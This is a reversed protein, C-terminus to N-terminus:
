NKRQDFQDFMTETRDELDNYTRYFDMKRREQNPNPVKIFLNRTVLWVLGLLLAILGLQGMLELEM